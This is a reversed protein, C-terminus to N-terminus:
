VSIKVCGRVCLLVDSQMCAVRADTGTSDVPERIRVTGLEATGCLGSEAAVVGEARVVGGLLGGVCSM